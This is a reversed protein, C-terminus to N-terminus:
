SSGEVHEACHPQLQFFCSVALPLFRFCKKGTPLEPRVDVDAKGMFLFNFTESYFHWSNVKSAQLEQNRIIIWFASVYIFICYIHNKRVAIYTFIILMESFDFYFCKNQCMGTKFSAPLSM